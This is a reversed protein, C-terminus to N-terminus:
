PGRSLPSPRAEGSGSSGATGIGSDRRIAHPKFRLLATVDSSVGSTVGLKVAGGLLEMM